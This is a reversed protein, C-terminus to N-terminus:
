QVSSFRHKTDKIKGLEPLDQVGSLLHKIVLGAGKKSFKRGQAIFDHNM